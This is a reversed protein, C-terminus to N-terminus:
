CRQLGVLQNAAPQESQLPGWAHALAARVTDCWRELSYREAARLADISMQRYGDPDRLCATVADALADSTRSTLTVGCGNMMRGISSPTTVVPLGCALAEHVSQRLSENEVTPLCFLHAQRLLELVREHTAAGHFTVRDGVNLDDALRGLNSFDVGHGVVDLTVHPFEHALGPLARLVIATAETELPRGVIILRARGPSLVRPVRTAELEAESVTTSFIWKIAPNDPSPPEDFDGTAFVVNRGGAIRELLTRELRWLLRRESWVNMPRVLLRKRMALALLLGLTGVPSPLLPFVADAQSIERTLTLGNRVFWFPLILWTLWTSKPVSTLSIVSLDKGALARHGQREASRSCPAVVRTADFVNSLAGIQRVVGGHTAFGTPSHASPWFLKHWIVTLRM